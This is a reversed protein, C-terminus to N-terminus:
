PDCIKPLSSELLDQYIRLGKHAQMIPRMARKKRNLFDSLTQLNNAKKPQSPSPTEVSDVSGSTGTPKLKIHPHRSEIHKKLNSTTGTRYVLSVKCIKCIASSKDLVEIGSETKMFFGLHEWVPSSLGCAFIKRESM